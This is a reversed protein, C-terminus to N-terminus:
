KSVLWKLLMHNICTIDGHRISRIDKEYELYLAYGILTEDSDEEIADKLTVLLQDFRQDEPIKDWDRELKM